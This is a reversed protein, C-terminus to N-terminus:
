SLLLLLADLSQAGEKIGQFGLNQVAKARPNVALSCIPPVVQGLFFSECWVLSNVTQASVVDDCANQV